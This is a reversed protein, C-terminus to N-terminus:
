DLVYTLCGSTHGPTARVELHRSGFAIRDGPKLYVDAGEAGSQAALAIKCGLKSKLLWAASVHDAHIHTELSYRLKLNLEDILAIERRVQEFVPDIVVAEGTADDALLYTYTSSQADILQRFIMARGKNGFPSSVRSSRGHTAVIQSNVARASR